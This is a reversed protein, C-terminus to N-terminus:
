QSNSPVRILDEQNEFLLHKYQHCIIHYLMYMHPANRSKTDHACNLFRSFCGCLLTVKLSFAVSRWTHKERKKFQACLELDCLM